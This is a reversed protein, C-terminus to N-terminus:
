AALAREFEVAVEVDSRPLDYLSAITDVSEGGEHLRHLTATRVGTGRVVPQGFAIQPDVVVPANPGWPNWREALDRADFELQQLYESLTKQMAIQGHGVLEVFVDDEDQRALEVFVGGPDAFWRRTAFPHEAELLRKATTLAQRVKQWSVGVSRLEKVSFLEVFEVFTLAYRNDLKQLDTRIVSEYERGRRRYGFAWRRVSATDVGILRAAESTTYLGSGVEAAMHAM